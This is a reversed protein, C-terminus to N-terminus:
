NAYPCSLTYSEEMVLLNWQAHPDHTSFVSWAPTSNEYRNHTVRAFKEVDQNEEMDDPDIDVTFIDCYPRLSHLFIPPSMPNASVATLDSTLAISQGDPSFVPHNVHRSFDYGSQIVRVVSRDITNVLYVVFNGPDLGHDLEPADAPRDHNSSFVRDLRQESIMPLTHTGTWDGDTIREAEGANEGAEADM